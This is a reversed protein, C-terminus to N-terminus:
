LGRLLAALVTVVGEQVFFYVIVAVIYSLDLTIGGIPLPPIFRRFLRLYPETVRALLQGLQTEALDPLWSIVATAILLYGYAWLAAQVVNFLQVYLNM